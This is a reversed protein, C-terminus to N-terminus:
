CLNPNDTIGEINWWINMDDSYIFIQAWVSAADTRFRTSNNEAPGMHSNNGVSAM